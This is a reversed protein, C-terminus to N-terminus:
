AYDYRVARKELPEAFDIIRGLLDQRVAAHGPDEWRNVIEGPDDQLDYLEGFSQGHYYTLKYRETVVTKLRLTRPDDVTEVFVQEHMSECQGQVLPKLDVGDMDGPVDIGTLSLATPALDALSVLSKVVTGAHAHNPFQVILPVRILEEYHFPGKMWLGHDGLLEGHDSTFVVLTTRDLGTRALLDFIRSMARDVLEVLGWYYARGRRADDPPVDRYDAGEGQGAMFYTGRYPSQELKGEHAIQFFPPKDDLEGPTYRPLPASSPDLTRAHEVPLAHPSHPDEFGVSLFFPKDDSSARELFACVRDATWTSSHLELPIDWDYAEGQFTSSSRKHIPFADDCPHGLKEDLWSGYHGALGFTTHGLAIEVEDFGYYPGRFAPFRKRWNDICEVSVDNDGAWANFHAKGILHTRYGLSKLRHSLFLEEPPVDVGVNWAGHRGMYKGTLISARSPTCVPNTCYAREFRVGRHAMADLAPTKAFPAGYCGLSDTRQQDTTIFIINPQM